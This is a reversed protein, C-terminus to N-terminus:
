AVKEEAAACQWGGIPLEGVVFAPQVATHDIQGAMRVFPQQAPEAEPVCARGRRWRAGAAWRGCIRRAAIRGLRFRGTSSRRWGGGGEGLGVDVGPVGGGGNVLFLAGATEEGPGHGGVM